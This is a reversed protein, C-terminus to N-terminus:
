GERRGRLERRLWARAIAWEKSVTKGSVDLHAAIEEVTLGGFFKLEVIAHGRPDRRRLEGLAEDLDLLDVEDVAGEGFVEIGTLTTRAWGGGRRAANRSRAADVLLSRLTSAALAMFQGQGLMRFDELRALKLYCEHVLETASTSHVARSGALLKGALARLEDYLRAAVPEVPRDRGRQIRGEWGPATLEGHETM